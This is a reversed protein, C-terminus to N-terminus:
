VEFEGVDGNGDEFTHQWAAIWGNVFSPSSHLEVLTRWFCQRRHLELFWRFERVARLRQEGDTWFFRSGQALRAIDRVGQSFICKAALLNIVCPGDQALVDEEEYAEYPLRPRRQRLKRPAM